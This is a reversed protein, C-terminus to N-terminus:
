FPIPACCALALVLAAGAMWRGAPGPARGDSAVPLPARTGLMHLGVAWLIWPAWALALVTLGATVAWTGVRHWRPALAALAHGGDLQGFPLLNTWTVFAATWAAFALPDAPDVTATGGTLRAAVWWGLPAHFSVAPTGHLDPPGLALRLAVLALLAAGGALPGSLGLRLLGDRDRPRGRLRIVAGFTGFLMPFPLFWPASVAIGDRRAAWQHGAEHVLLVGLLGASYRLGDRLAPWSLPDAHRQWLCAHVLTTSLATAVLLAVAVWAARRDPTADPALGSRGVSWSPSGSM